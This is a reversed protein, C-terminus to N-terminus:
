QELMTGDAIRDTLWDRLKIAQQKNLGVEYGALTESNRTIVALYGGHFITLMVKRGSCDNLHIQNSLIEDM